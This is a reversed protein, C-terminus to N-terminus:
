ADVKSVESAHIGAEHESVIQAMLRQAKGKPERKM